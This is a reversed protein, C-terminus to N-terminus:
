LQQLAASGLKQGDEPEGELEMAEVDDYFLIFKQIEDLLHVRRRWLGSRCRLSTTLLSAWRFTTAAARASKAKQLRVLERDVTLCSITAAEKWSLLKDGGGSLRGERGGRPDM